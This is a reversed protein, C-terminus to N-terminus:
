SYLWIATGPNGDWKVNVGTSQFRKVVQEGITKDATREQDDDKLTGYYLCVNGYEWLDQEGQQHYYVIGEVKKGIKELEEAKQSLNCNVCTCCCLYNMRALYGERRLEKFVMNIKDKLEYVRRVEVM